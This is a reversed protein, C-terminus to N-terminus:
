KLKWKCIFYIKDDKLEAEIIGNMNEILKKTISLGLGSSESSSRSIDQKYFRDFICEIDEKKLVKSKNSIVLIAKDDKVDLIIHEEGNSYKVLNSILNDVIRTIGMKNGVVIINERKIDIRPEIQNEKFKDYTSSIVEYLINNLNLYEIDMKYEPSQIISLEFFKELIGKLVKARKEAISICEQRQLDSIGDKQSMQIYGLISTLPTRIDHSINAIARKMEEEINIQRVSSQIHIDIHANINKALEEINKDFLKVDIKKRTNEHNYENLQRSISKIEKKLFYLYALLIFVLAVLVIEM